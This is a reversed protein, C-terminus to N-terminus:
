YLLVTAAQITTVFRFGPSPEYLLPYHSGKWDMAVQMSLKHSTM